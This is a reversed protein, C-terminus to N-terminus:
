AHEALRDPLPAISPTRAGRRAEPAAAGLTADLLFEWVRFV